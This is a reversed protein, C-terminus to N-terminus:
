NTPLSLGPGRQVGFGVIAAVASSARGPHPCALSTLSSCTVRPASHTAPGPLFATRLRPDPSVPQPHGTLLLGGDPGQAPDHAAM